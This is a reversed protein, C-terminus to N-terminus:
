KYQEELYKVITDGHCRKPKCFCGLTKGQLKLVLSKFHSNNKIRSRFYIEYNDCNENRYGHKYPNGFPSGRGIYVDYPEHKKINAIKM